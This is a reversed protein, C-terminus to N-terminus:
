GKLERVLMSPPTEVMCTGWDSFTMETRKRASLVYRVPRGSPDVWLEYGASPGLDDAIRARLRAQAARDGARVEAYEEEIRRALPMPDTYAIYATLDLREVARLVDIRVTYHITSHGTAREVTDGEIAAATVRGSKILLAHARYGDILNTAMMALMRIGLLHYPEYYGNIKDFPKGPAVESGIPMQFYTGDRTRILRGSFGEGFDSSLNASLDASSGTGTGCSSLTVSTGGSRLVRKVTPHTALYDGVLTAIAAVSRTPPLTAASGATLLGVTIIM